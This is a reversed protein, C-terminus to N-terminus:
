RDRAAPPPSQAGLKPRLEVRRGHVGARSPGAHFAISREAQDLVDEISTGLILLGPLAPVTLSIRDPDSTELEVEFADM